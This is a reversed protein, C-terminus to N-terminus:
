SRDGEVDGDPALLWLLDLVAAISGAASAAQAERGRGASAPLASGALCPPTGRARPSRLVVNAFGDRVPRQHECPPASSYGARVAPGLVASGTAVPTAALQGAPADTLPGQDRRGIMPWPKDSWRVPCPRAGSTVVIGAGVVPDVEVPRRQPLELCLDDRRVRSHQGVAGPPFAAGGAAPGPTLLWPKCMASLLGVAVQNLQAPQHSNRRSTLSGAHEPSGPPRATTYELLGYRWGHRTDQM